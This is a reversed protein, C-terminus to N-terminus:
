RTISDTRGSVLCARDEVAGRGVSPAPSFGKAQIADSLVLGADRRRARNAAGGEHGCGEFIVRRSSM